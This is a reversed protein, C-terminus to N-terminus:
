LGYWRYGLPPLLLGVLLLVLIVLLILGLPNGYTVYGGSYGWAGGCLLLILLVILILTM